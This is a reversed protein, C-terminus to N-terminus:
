TSCGDISESDSSPDSDPHVVPATPLDYPNRWFRFGGGAVPVQFSLGYQDRFVRLGGMVFTRPLGAPAAEAVGWLLDSLPRSDRAVLKAKYVTRAFRGRQVAQLRRAAAARRMRALGMRAVRGRQVAQLRTAAAAGFIADHDTRIRTIRDALSRYAAAIRRVSADDLRFHEAAQCQNTPNTAASSPRM